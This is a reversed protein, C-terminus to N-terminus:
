ATRVIGNTVSFDCGPTPDSPCVNVGNMQDGTTNVLALGDQVVAVAMNLSAFSGKPARVGGLGYAWAATAASLVIVILFSVFSFRRSGVTPSKM